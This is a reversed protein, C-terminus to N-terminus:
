PRPGVASGGAPPVKPGPITPSHGEGGRPRPRPRYGGGSGGGCFLWCGLALLMFISWDAQTM